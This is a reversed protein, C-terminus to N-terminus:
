PMPMDVLLTTVAAALDPDSLTVSRLAPDNSIWNRQQDLYETM